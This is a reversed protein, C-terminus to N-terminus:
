PREGKGEDRRRDRRLEDILEQRAREMVERSLSMPGGVARLPTVRSRITHLNDLREHIASLQRQISGLTNQTDPETLGHQLIRTALAAVTTRERAAHEALQQYLDAPIEIRRRNQSSPL